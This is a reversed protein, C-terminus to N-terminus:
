EYIDDLPYSGFKVLPKKSLNEWIDRRTKVGNKSASMLKKHTLFNYSVYSEELTARNFIKNDYGILYLGGNQYRYVLKHSPAEWSGASHFMKYGISVVGKASITASVEDLSCFEDAAEIVNIAFDWLEYVGGNGFYIAVVPENKNIQYGDDRTEINEPNDPLAIVVLDPIYDHNIDNEAHALLTWGEPLMEEASIGSAKLSKTQASAMIAMVLMACLFMTKKM